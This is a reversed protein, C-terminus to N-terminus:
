RCTYSTAQRPDGTGNYYSKLPYRCLDRSAGTYTFAAITEPAKGKEVWDVVPKLQDFPAAGAAPGCHEAGPALFVRFFKDVKTAGGMRREVQHRYSLTGGYHIVADDTGHWTVLKGGSNRFATLNPDDTGLIRDYERESQRFIQEFERYGVTSFDFAPDKKVFYKVWNVALKFPTGATADLSTSPDYGPWLQVGSRTKPGAWIKRVVDAEAKTITETKGKCEIQRGILTGPDFRCEGPERVIGDVLGDAPDCQAVAAKRFAELECSTPHAGEVNMVVQPWLDAVVFSPMSIAPAAASIGDYDGPYRQANMMGQRGGTSCGNWYSYAPAKGYYTKTVAKGAVALDHLSRYAFNKLLERNVRGKSDLAWKSPDEFDFGVGGDTQAAAYGEKVALALPGDGQHMSYGGGGTAQFRGNWGTLPLWLRVLVHDGAGPHTLEVKVECFPPVDTIPPVGWEPPYEITGGPKPAASTGLVKAGPVSPKAVEGCGTAPAPASGTASAQVPVLLAGLSLVALIMRKM